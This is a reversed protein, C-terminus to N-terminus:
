KSPEEPQAPAAPAAAAPAASIHVLEHLVAVIVLATVSVAAAVNPPLATKVLDPNAAIVGAASGFATMVAAGVRLFTPNM